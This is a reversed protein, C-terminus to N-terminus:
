VFQSVSLTFLVQLVVLFVLVFIRSRISSAIGTPNKKYGKAKTEEIVQQVRDCQKPWNFQKVGSLIEKSSQLSISILDTQTIDAIQAGCFGAIIQAKCPISCIHYSSM